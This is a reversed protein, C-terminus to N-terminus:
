GGGSQGLGRARDNAPYGVHVVEGVLMLDAVLAEFAGGVRLVVRGVRPARREAGGVLELGTTGTKWGLEAGGWGSGRGARTPKKTERGWDREGTKPLAVSSVTFRKDWLGGQQPRRRPMWPGRKFTAM